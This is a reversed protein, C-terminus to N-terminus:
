VGFRCANISNLFRHCRANRTKRISVRFNDVNAGVKTSSWKFPRFILCQDSLSGASFVYAPCNRRRFRWLCSDHRVTYWFIGKKTAFILNWREFKNQRFAFKLKKRFSQPLRCPFGSSRPITEALQDFNTLGAVENQNLSSVFSLRKQTRFPPYDRECESRNPQWILAWISFSCKWIKGFM